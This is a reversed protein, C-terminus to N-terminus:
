VLCTVMRMWSLSNVRAVMIVFPAMIMLKLIMLTISVPPAWSLHPMREVVVHYKM